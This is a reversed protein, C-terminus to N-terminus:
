RQNRYAIILKADALKTVDNAQISSLQADESEVPVLIFGFNSRKGAIQDRVSLYVDASIKGDNKETVITTSPLDEDFDGGAKEWGSTWESSKADWSSTLPYVDVTLPEDKTAPLTMTIVAADVIKKDLDAPLEWEVMIRPSASKDTPEITAIQKAEIEMFEAQAVTALSCILAMLLIATTRM